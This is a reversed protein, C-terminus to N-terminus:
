LGRRVGARLRHLRPPRRAKSVGDDRVRRLNPRFGHAPPMEVRGHGVLGAYVWRRVDAGYARAVARAVAAGDPVPEAGAFPRADASAVASADASCYALADAAADASALARADTAAVARVNTAAVARADAAAHFLRVHSGRM